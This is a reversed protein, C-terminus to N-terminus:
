KTDEGTELLWKAVPIVPIEFNDVVITEEQNLTLITGQDLDFHQMAKQLARIERERTEQCSSLM